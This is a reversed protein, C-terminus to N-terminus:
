WGQFACGWGQWGEMGQIACVMLDLFKLLSKQFEPYIPYERSAHLIHTKTIPQGYRFMPDLAPCGREPRPDTKFLHEVPFKFIFSIFTPWFLECSNVQLLLYLNKQPFPVVHSFAFPCLHFLFNLKRDRSASGICIEIGLRASWNFAEEHHAEALIEKTPLSLPSSSFLKKQQLETRLLKGSRANEGRGEGVRPDMFHCSGEM